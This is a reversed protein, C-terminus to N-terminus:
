PLAGPPPPFNPTFVNPSSTAKGKFIQNCWREFSKSMRIAVSLPMTRVESYPQHCVVMLFFLLDDM